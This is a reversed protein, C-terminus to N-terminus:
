NLKVIKRSNSLFPVHFRVNLQYQERHEEAQQKERELAEDVGLDTPGGEFAAADAGVVCGSFM